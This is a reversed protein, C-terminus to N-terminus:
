NEWWELQEGCARCLCSELLGRIKSQLEHEEQKVKHYEETYHRLALHKFEPQNLKRQDSEKILWGTGIREMM